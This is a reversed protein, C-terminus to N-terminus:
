SNLICGGMAGGSLMAYKGSVTMGSKLAATVEALNAYGEGATFHLACGGGAPGVGQDDDDDDRDVGTGTGDDAGGAGSADDPGDAASAAGPADESGQSLTVALHTLVGDAGLPFRVRVKFARATDVCSAGPGYEAATFDRPGSWGGGSSSNANDPVGGGYGSSAGYPDSAGHFTTHFAFRNAEMLDVEACSVGCVSNADCYYDGCSGPHPNQRM